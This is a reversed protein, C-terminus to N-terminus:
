HIIPTIGSVVWAGERSRLQLLCLDGWRRGLRPDGRYVDGPRVQVHQLTWFISLPPPFECQIGSSPLTPTPNSLTAASTLWPPVTTPCPSRRRGSTWTSRRPAATCCMPMLKVTTSPSKIWQRRLKRKKNLNPSSLIYQDLWHLFIPILFVIRHIRCGSGITLGLRRDLSWGRCTGRGWVMSSQLLRVPRIDFHNWVGKLWFCFDDLVNTAYYNLNLPRTGQYWDQGLARGRSGWNSLGGCLRVQTPLYLEATVICTM